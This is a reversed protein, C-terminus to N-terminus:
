IRRTLNINGATDRYRKCSTAVVSLVRSHAFVLQETGNGSGQQLFPIAALPKLNHACHRSCECGNAFSPHSCAFKAYIGEREWLTECALGTPAYSHLCWPFVPVIPATAIYKAIVAFLRLELHRGGKVTHVPTQASAHVRYALM